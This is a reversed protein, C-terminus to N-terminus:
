SSLRTTKKDDKNKGNKKSTVIFAGMTKQKTKKRAKEAQQEFLLKRKTSCLYEWAKDMKEKRLEKEETSERKVLKADEPSGFFNMAKRTFAKVFLQECDDCEGRRSCLGCWLNEEEENTLFQSNDEKEAM